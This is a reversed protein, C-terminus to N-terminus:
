AGSVKQHITQARTGHVVRMTWKSMSLWCTTMTWAVALESWSTAWIISSDRSTQRTTWSIKKRQNFWWTVVSTFRWVLVLGQKVWTHPMKLQPIMTGMFSLLAMRIHSYVVYMQCASDSTSGRQWPIRHLLAGGDPVYQVNVKPERQGGTMSKM